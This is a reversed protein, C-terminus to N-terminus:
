KGFDPSAAGIAVAASVGETLQPRLVYLHKVYPVDDLILVDDGPPFRHGDLLANDVLGHILQSGFVPFAAHLQHLLKVRSRYIAM